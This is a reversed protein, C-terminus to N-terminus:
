CYRFLATYRAIHKIRLHASCIGIPQKKDDAPPSTSFSKLFELVQAESLDSWYFFVGAVVASGMIILSILWTFIKDLLLPLMATNHYYYAGCDM